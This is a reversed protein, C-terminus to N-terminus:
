GERGEEGRGWMPHRFTPSADRHWSRQVPAAAAAVAESEDPAEAHSQRRVARGSDLSNLHRALDVLAALNHVPLLDDIYPAAARMGQTLPEYDEAGALPNLWILRRCSRQLRAMEESLAEPEGRDWGDSVILVISGWGLTRRAWRFNFERLAEGIRTGGSWDPVAKSVDSVAEDIDRRGLQKTIRTLRTAFLFAEVRSELGGYLSHIFHLLMRTYREMSGSVDCIVVLRRAKEKRRRTKLRLPEGGFQANDRLTRRVDLRPGRGREQRRTLRLGPNWELSAMLRRAERVEDPTFEAFDKERLVERASFTRTLDIRDYQENPDQAEGDSGNSSLGPPPPGAEVRRYRRQEGMSRLDLSSMRDRRQRWFVEFAEDFLPLDERRHVLVTRLASWVDVRRTMGIDELVRVADVMRGEHVNLGLRRLLHGFLLLNHLIHGAPESAM